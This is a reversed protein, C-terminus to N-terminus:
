TASAGGVRRLISWLARWESELLMRLVALYVAAGLALLVLLLPVPGVRGVVGHRVVELVALVLGGAIAGPKVDDILQRIPLGV